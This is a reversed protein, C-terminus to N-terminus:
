WTTSLELMTGSLWGVRALEFIALKLVFFVGKIREVERKIKERMGIENINVQDLLKEFQLILDVENIYGCKCNKDRSRTCGYYIHRNVSGDKLKKFKEDACIGSGCLGCTIM